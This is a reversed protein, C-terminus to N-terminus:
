EYLKFINMIKKSFDIHSIGITNRSVHKACAFEVFMSKRRKGIREHISGNNTFKLINSKSARINSGTDLFCTLVHSGKNVRMPCNNFADQAVKTTNKIM